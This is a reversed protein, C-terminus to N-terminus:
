RKGGKHKRTTTVARNSTPTMTARRTRRRRGASGCTAAITPWAQLPLEVELAADATHRADRWATEVTTPDWVVPFAIRSGFWAEEQCLTGPTQSRPTATGM